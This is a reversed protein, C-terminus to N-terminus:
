ISMEFYVSSVDLLVCQFSVMRAREWAPLKFLCRLIYVPSFGYLHSVHQFFKERAMNFYVSSLFWVHTNCTTFGERRETAKVSMNFYM